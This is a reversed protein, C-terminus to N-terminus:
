KQKKHYCALQWRETSRFAKETTFESERNTKNVEESEDLLIM